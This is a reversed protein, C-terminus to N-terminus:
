ADMRAILEGRALRCGANLAGAVGLNRELRHVRVRADRSAAELLAATRDTSADDVVILELDSFTQGLVSGIAEGLFREGNHVPMVVSVTPTSHAPAASSDSTPM